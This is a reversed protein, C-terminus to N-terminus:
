LICLFHSVETAGGSERKLLHLSGHAVLEAEGVLLGVGEDQPCVARQAVLESHRDFLHGLHGRDRTAVVLAELIIVSELVAVDDLGGEFDVLHVLQEDEEVAQEHLVELALFGVADVEQGIQVSLFPVLQAALELFEVGQVTVRQVAGPVHQNVDAARSSLEEDDFAQDVPQSDM